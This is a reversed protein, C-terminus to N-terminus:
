KGLFKKKIWGMGFKIADQKDFDGDGDQDMVMGLIANDKGTWSLMKMLDKTGFGSAAKKQDGLTEMIVSSLAGMVWSAQEASQGSAKAVEAVANDSWGFIHGLINKGDDIDIKSEWLHSNLANNLDEAWKESETNKSLQGLIMPLAKAAIAKTAANDGGVKKTIEELAKWKLQNLLMNSLEM